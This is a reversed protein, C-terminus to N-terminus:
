RRNLQTDSQISDTGLTLPYLAGFEIFSDHIRNYKVNWKSRNRIMTYVKIINGVGILEIFDMDIM